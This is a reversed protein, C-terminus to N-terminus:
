QKARYFSSGSGSPPTVSYPNTAGQVDNWQGGITTTSQLIGTYTIKLLAGQQAIGITPALAADNFNWYAVLGNTFSVQAQSTLSLFPLVLALTALSLRRSTKRLNLM